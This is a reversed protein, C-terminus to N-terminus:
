IEMSMDPAGGGAAGKRRMESRCILDEKAEAHLADGREIPDIQRQSRIRRTTSPSSARATGAKPLAADARLCLM